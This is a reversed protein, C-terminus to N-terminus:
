SKKGFLSFIMDVLFMIIFSAATKYLSINKEYLFTILTIGISTVLAFVLAKQLRKKITM